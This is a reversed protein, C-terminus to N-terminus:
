CLNFYLCQLHVNILIFNSHIYQRNTLMKFQEICKILIKLIINLFSTVIFFHNAIDLLEDEDIKGM